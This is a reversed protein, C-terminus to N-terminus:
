LDIRQVGNMGLTLLVTSGNSALSQAVAYLPVTRLITPAAVNGIDVIMADTVGHVLARTGNAYVPPTGWWGSWPDPVGAVSLRGSVLTGTDFGGLTLLTAPTADGGYYFCPGFCGTIRPGYYGDGDRITLAARGDSFGSSTVEEHEGLTYSGDLTALEGDVHVLHLTQKYGTCTARADRKGSPQSDFDYNKFRTSCERHTLKAVVVRGFELVLASAHASDYHLLSGPVNVKNALVPASPVRLDVRDLYFRVKGTSGTEYHSVLVEDGAVVLGSSIAARPLDLTHSTPHVPDTLDVIRLRTDFGAEQPSSPSNWRQEMSVLAQGTAVTTAVNPTYGYPYTNQYANWSSTDDREAFDSLVKPQAPDNADVTIVGFTHVTTSSNLFSEWREYALHILNGRANVSSISVDSKCGEA